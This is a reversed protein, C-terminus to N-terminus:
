QAMKIMRYYDYVGYTLLSLGLFWSIHHLIEYIETESATVSVIGILSGILLFVSSLLVPSWFSRRIKKVRFEILTSLSFFALLLSLFTCAINAVLMLPHLSFGQELLHIIM